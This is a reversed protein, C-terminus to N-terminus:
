TPRTNFKHMANSHELSFTSLFTELNFTANSYLLISCPHSINVTIWILASQMFSVRASLSTLMDTQTQHHPDLVSDMLSLSYKRTRRSRASSKASNIAPAEEEGEAEGEAETELDTGEAPEVDVPEPEQGGKKRGKGKKKKDKKDPLSPRPVEELVTIEEEVLRDYFTRWVYMIVRDLHAQREYRKNLFQDVADKNKAILTNVYVPKFVGLQNAIITKLWVIRPDENHIPGDAFSENEQLSAKVSGTTYSMSHLPTELAAGAM